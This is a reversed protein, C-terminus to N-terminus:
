FVEDSFGSVSEPVGPAERKLVMRNITENVTM